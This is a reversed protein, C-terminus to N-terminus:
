CTTYMVPFLSFLQFACHIYQLLKQNQIVHLHTGYVYDTNLGLICQNQEKVKTQFPDLEHM